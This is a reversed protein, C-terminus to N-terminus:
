NNYAANLKAAITTKDNITRIEALGHAVKAMNQALLALETNIKHEVQQQKRHQPHSDM